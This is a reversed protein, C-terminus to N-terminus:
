TLFGRSSYDLTDFIQRLPVKINQKSRQRISEVMSEQNLIARLLSKFMAYTQSSEMDTLERPKRYELSEREASDVPLLMNAFEWYSLRGDEDADYRATVLRADNIDCTIELKEFASQVDTSSLRKSLTNASNNNDGVFMFFAPELSFDARRALDIKSRELNGELLLIERFCNSHLWDLAQEHDTSIM